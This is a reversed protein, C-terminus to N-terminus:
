ERWSRTRIAGRLRDYFLSNLRTREVAIADGRHTTAFFSSQLQRLFKEAPILPGIGVQDMIHTLMPWIFAATKGSGTKAIGIMDRGSMAVPVGQSARAHIPVKHIPARM